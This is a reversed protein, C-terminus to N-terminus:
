EKFCLLCDKLAQAVEPKMLFEVTILKKTGIAGDKGLDFDLVLERCNGDHDKVAAVLKEVVTEYDVDADKPLKQEKRVLQVAKGIATTLKDDLTITLDEVDALNPDLAMRVEQLAECRAQLCGTTNLADMLKDFMATNGNARDIDLAQFFYADISCFIKYAELMQAATNADPHADVHMIKLLLEAAERSPQLRNAKPVKPARFAKDFPQGAAEAKQKAVNFKRELKAVETQYIKVAEELKKPINAEERLDKFCRLAEVLNEYKNGLKGRFLKNANGACATFKQELPKLYDMMFQYARQTRLPPLNDTARFNFDKLLDARSPVRPNASRDNRKYIVSCQDAVGKVLKDVAAQLIQEQQLYPLDDAQTKVRKQLEDEAGVLTWLLGLCRMQPVGIEGDRVDEKLVNLVGRCTEASKGELGELCDKVSKFVSKVFTAVSLRELDTSGAAELAKTEQFVYRRYAAQLNSPLTGWDPDSMPDFLTPDTARNHAQIAEYVLQIRRATLPRESTVKGAGNLKFDGLKLVNKVSQPIHDAGGFQDCVSKFFAARTALNAAKFDDSRGGLKTWKRGVLGPANRRTQIVSDEGSLAEHQIATKAFDYMKTLNANMELSM